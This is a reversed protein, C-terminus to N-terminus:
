TQDVCSVTIRAQMRGISGGRTFSKESYVRGSCVLVEFKMKKGGSVM